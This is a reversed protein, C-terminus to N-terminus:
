AAQCDILRLSSISGIREIEAKEPQPERGYLDRLRQRRRYTHFAEWDGNEVVSRLHLLTEAGLRTWRMGSLECRDKVLHRCAGEIVGTAIPWGAALYLDYRMCLLNREYYGAVSELVSGVNAPTDSAGARDRLEAILGATQGSLMQRTREKVWLTREPHTEGLLANAGKWLYEVAHVLDLVLTFDPFQERIQLQLPASGDSLAVRDTITQTDRAV